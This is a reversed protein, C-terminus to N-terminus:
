RLGKPAFYRAILRAILNLLMVLLILTLAGAWARDIYAQTDAGQNMYSNYVFVPLTMMSGDFLNYNMSQTLGVTVLLPATEGIVRAIALMVGTTIGAMSTPLVIKTITRWRPVGLALSAERLDNPVLRLMEETSRVVVPIMLVALSISGAFGNQEGPGLIMLFLAYSFLGAVISPIGTMVDVLFTITKAIWNKGYEVLYIACLLGIPVSLLAAMLTIELTGVIGHLAGGGQGVVNRMSNTFFEADFRSLGKSLVTIVVSILPFLSIIFAAYVMLQWFRARCHRAGETLGSAVLIATSSLIIAVLIAGFWNFGHNTALTLLWFLLVSVASAGLTFGCLLRRSLKHSATFIAPATTQALGIGNPAPVFQGSSASPKRRLKM